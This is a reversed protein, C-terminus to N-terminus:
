LTRFVAHCMIFSVSRQSTISVCGGYKIASEASCMDETICLLSFAIFHNESNVILNTNAFFIHVKNNLSQNIPSFEASYSTISNVTQM